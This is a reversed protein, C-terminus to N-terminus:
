YYQFDMEVAQEEILTALAKINKVGNNIIKGPQMNTEDVILVTGPTLTALYGQEMLNTDYNKKSSFVMNSLADTTSKLDWITSAFPSLKYRAQTGITQFDKEEPKKYRSKKNEQNSTVIANIFRLTATM